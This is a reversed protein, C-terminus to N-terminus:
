GSATGARLGTARAARAAAPAGDDLKAAREVKRGLEAALGENATVGARVAGTLYGLAAAAAPDSAVRARLTDAAGTLSLGLAQLESDRRANSVCTSLRTGGPLRVDDPARELARVFSAPGGLCAAPVPDKEVTACGALLLVLIAAALLGAMAAM